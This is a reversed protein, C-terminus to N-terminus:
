TQTGINSRGQQNSNISLRGGTMTRASIASCTTLARRSARSKWATTSITLGRDELTMTTAGDSDQCCGDEKNSCRDSSGYSKIMGRILDVLPETLIPSSLSFSAGPFSLSFFICIHFLRVRSSYNGGVNRPGGSM